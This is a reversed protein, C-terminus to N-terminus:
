QRDNGIRRRGPLAEFLQSRLLFGGRVPDRLRVGPLGFGPPQEISRLGSVDHRITADGASSAFSASSSL